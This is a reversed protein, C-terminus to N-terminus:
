DQNDDKERANENAGELSIIHTAEESNIDSWVVVRLEGDYLEIAVVYGGEAHCFDGYGEPHILIGDRDAEIRCPVARGNEVPDELVLVKGLADAARRCLEGMYDDQGDAFRRLEEVLNDDTVPPATTTWEDEPGCTLTSGDHFSYIQKDGERLFHYSHSQAMRKVDDAIIVAHPPSLKSHCLVSRLWLFHQAVTGNM